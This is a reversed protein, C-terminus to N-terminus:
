FAFRGEGRITPAARIERILALATLDAFEGVLYFRLAPSAMAAVIGM